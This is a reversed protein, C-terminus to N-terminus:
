RPLSRQACLCERTCWLLQVGVEPYAIGYQPTPSFQPRNETPSRGRGSEAFMGSTLLHDFIRFTNPAPFRQTPAGPPDDRRRSPVSARPGASPKPCFIWWLIAAFLAEAVEPFGAPRNEFLGRDVCTSFPCPSSAWTYHKKPNIRGSFKRSPAIRGLSVTPKEPPASAVGLSSATRRRMRSILM